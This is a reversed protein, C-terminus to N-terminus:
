ILEPMQTAKGVEEEPEIAEPLAEEPAGAEPIAGEEEPTEEAIAGEEPAEGEIELPPMMTENGTVLAEEPSGAEPGIPPEEPAPAAPAPAPAPAPAAEVKKQMKKVPTTVSIIGYDSDEFDFLQAELRLENRLKNKFKKAIAMLAMSTAKQMRDHEVVKNVDMEKIIKRLAKMDSCFIDIKEIDIGRIHNSVFYNKLNCNIKKLEKKLIGIINIAEATSIISPHKQDQKKNKKSHSLNPMRSPKQKKKGSGYAMSVKFPAAYEESSMNAENQRNDFYPTELESKKYMNSYIDQPKM